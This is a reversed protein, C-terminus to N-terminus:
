SPSTSATPPNSISTRGSPHDRPATFVPAHHHRRLEHLPRDLQAVDLRLHDLRIVRRGQLICDRGEQVRAPFADQDACVLDALEGDQNEVGLSSASIGVSLFLYMFASLADSTRPRSASSSYKRRARSNSGVWATVVAASPAHPWIRGCTRSVIRSSRPRMTPAPRSRPPYPSISSSSTQFRAVWCSVLSIARLAILAAFRASELM